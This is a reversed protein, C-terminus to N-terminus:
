FSSGLGLSNEKAQQIDRTLFDLMLRANQDMDSVGQESKFISQSKGLLMAISGTIITFVVSAILLETLSFGRETHAEFAREQKVGKVGIRLVCTHNTGGRNMLM